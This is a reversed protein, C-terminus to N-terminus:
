ENENEDAEDRLEFHSDASVDGIDLSDESCSSTESNMHTSAEGEREIQDDRERSEDNGDNEQYTSTSITKTTSEGEAVTTTDEEITRDDREVENEQATGGTGIGMRDACSEVLELCETITSEFLETESSKSQIFNDSMASGNRHDRCDAELDMQRRELVAPQSPMNTASAAGAAAAPTTVTKAHQIAADSFPGHDRSSTPVNETATLENTTEQAKPVVRTTGWNNCPGLSKLVRLRDYEQLVQKSASLSRTDFDTIILDALCRVRSLATYAMGPKNATGKGLNIITPGLTLSQSKHITMAYSLILPFQKRTVNWGRYEFSFVQPKIIILRKGEMDVAEAKSGVSPDNFFVYLLSTESANTEVTGAPLHDNVIPVSTSPAPQSTSLPQSQQQTPATSSASSTSHIKKKPLFYNRGKHLFGAIIGRAGNSLGDSVDLNRRLMVFAGLTIPFRSLLSGTVDPDLDKIKQAPPVQRGRQQDEASVGGKKFIDVAQIDLIATKLNSAAKHLRYENHAAVAKKTALLHVATLFRKTQMEKAIQERCTGEQMLCRSMLLRLDSETPSGVRIRNLAAAFDSDNKQRQTTTLFVPHIYQKWYADDADRFIPVACVPPLQFFDGVFLVGINGFLLPSPISEILEAAKNELMIQNLRKNMQEMLPLGVMSVEDVIMLVVNQWMERLLTLRDERLPCFDSIGTKAVPIALANHITSGRINYAAVGTPALKICGLNKSVHHLDANRAKAWFKVYQVITNILFSKGTGGPGSVFIRPPSPPPPYKSATPLSSTGISTRQAQYVESCKADWSTLQNLYHKIATLVCLQQSTLQKISRHLSLRQQRNNNSPGNGNGTCDDSTDTTAVEHSVIEQGLRSEQRRLTDELSRPFSAQQTVIDPFDEQVVSIGQLPGDDSDLQELTFIDSEVAKQLLLEMRAYYDFQLNEISQRLRSQHKAIAGNVITDTLEARSSPATGFLEAETRFPTHMLLLSTLSTV